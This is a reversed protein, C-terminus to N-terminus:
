AARQGLAGSRTRMKAARQGLSGIRTRMEVARQGLDGIRMLMFRAERVGRPSFPATGAAIALRREADMGAVRMLAVMEAAFAYEIALKANIILKLSIGDLPGGQNFLLM